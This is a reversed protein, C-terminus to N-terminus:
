IANSDAVKTYLGLLEIQRDIQYIKQDLKRVNLSNHMMATDLSTKEGAKELNRTNKYLRNYLEQFDPLIPDNVCLPYCM